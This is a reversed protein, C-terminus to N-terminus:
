LAVSVFKVKLFNAIDSHVKWLPIKADRFDFRMERDKGRRMFVKWGEESSQKVAIQSVDNCADTLHDINSWVNNHDEAENKGTNNRDNFPYMFRSTFFSSARKMDKRGQTSEFSILSKSVKNVYVLDFNEHNTQAMSKTFDTRLLSLTEENFENNDSLFTELRKLTVYEPVQRSVVVVMVGNILFSVLYGETLSRLYVRPAFVAEGAGTPGFLFGHSSNDVDFYNCRGFSSSGGDSEMAAPTGIRGYPPRLLKINSVEGSASSMALYSYLPALSHPDISSSVLFGRYLIAFDSFYAQFESMLELGLSHVSVLAHAEVPAYRIATPINKALSGITEASIYAPVFDDMSVTLRDRIRGHLLFYVDYFRELFNKAVVLSIANRDFCMCVYIDPEVQRVVFMFMDTEVTLPDTKNDCGGPYKVFRSFDVVGQILNSQNRRESADIPVSSHYFILKADALADEASITNVIDSKPSGVVTRTPDFIFIARIMAM